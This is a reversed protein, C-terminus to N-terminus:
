GGGGDSDGAEEGPGSSAEPYGCPSPDGSCDPTAGDACGGIGLAAFAVAAAAALPLVGRTMTRPTM